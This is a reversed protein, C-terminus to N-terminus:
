GVRIAIADIISMSCYNLKTFRSKQNAPSYLAASLGSIAAELIGPPNVARAFFQQLSSTDDSNNFGLYQFFLGRGYPVLYGVCYLNRAFQSLIGLTIGGGERQCTRIVGHLAGHGLLIITPKSM